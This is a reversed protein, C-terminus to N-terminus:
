KIKGIILVPNGDEELQDLLERMGKQQAANGRGQELAKELIDTMDLADVVIYGYNGSVSLLPSIPNPLREKRNKLFTSVDVDLALPDIHLTKVSQYNGKNDFHQLGEVSNLVSIGSIENSNNYTIILGTHQTQLLMGDKYSLQISLYDGESSTNGVEFPQLLTFVGVPKLEEQSLRFLTDSYGNHIINLEGRYYSMSRGSGSGKAPYPRSFPQLSNASPDYRYVLVTTDSGEAQGMNAGFASFRQTSFSYLRGMADTQATQFRSFEPKIPPLFRGDALNLGYIEDANMPDQYYLIGRAEDTQMNSVYQPYENPGNGQTMLTRIFRGERDFLLMKDAGAAIIYRESVHTGPQQANVLVSDSTELPVMRIDELLDSLALEISGSPHDADIVPLTKPGSDCGALAWLAVGCLVFCFSKM